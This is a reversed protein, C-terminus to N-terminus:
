HTHHLKVLEHSHHTGYGGGGDLHPCKEQGQSQIMPLSFACGSARNNNCHVMAWSQPLCFRIILCWETNLQCLFVHIVETSCSPLSSLGNGICTGPRLWAVTNGLFSSPVTQLVHHKNKYNTSPTYGHIKNHKKDIIGILITTWLMTVTVVLYIM